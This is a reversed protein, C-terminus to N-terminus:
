LGGIIERVLSNVVNDLKLLQKLQYANVWIFNEPLKINEDVLVIMSRNTKLYFRGGDEISIVNVLVRGMGSKEFYESFIPKKGKHFRLLNSETAQLTPSLQVGGINGPEFKAQLLYHMVGNIERCIIGLIGCEKQQIMPQCWSKVERDNTDSVKVGIIQFFGGSDHSIIGTEKDVHWEDLNDINVMEVKAPNNKRKEDLWELICDINEDKKRGDLFDVLLRIKLESENDITHSHKKLVRAIEDKM